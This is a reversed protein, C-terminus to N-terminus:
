RRGNGTDQRLRRGHVKILQEKPLLAVTQKRSRSALFAKRLCNGKRYGRETRPVQVPMFDKELKGLSGGFTGAKEKELPFM